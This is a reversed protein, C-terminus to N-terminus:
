PERVSLARQAQRRPENAARFSYGIVFGVILNILLLALQFAM